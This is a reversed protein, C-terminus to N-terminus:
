LITDFIYIVCLNPYLYVIAKNLNSHAAYLYLLFLLYWSPCFCNNLQAIQLIALQQYDVLRTFSHLQAKMLLWDGGGGGALLLQVETQRNLLVSVATQQQVYEETQDTHQLTEGLFCVLGPQFSPGGAVFCTKKKQKKKKKTVPGSVPWFSVSPLPRDTVSEHRLLFLGCRQVFDRKNIPFQSCTKNRDQM